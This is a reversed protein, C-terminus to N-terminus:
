LKPTFRKPVLAAWTKERDSKLDDAHIHHTSQHIGFTVPIPNSREDLNRNLYILSALHDYHGYVKSRAFERKIKAQNYIGYKLCGILMKCSPDVELGGTKVRIRLDNVMAPLEDKDTARFDIGHLHNLDNILLPNDNDSVRRYVSKRNWAPKGEADTMEWIRAEDDKIMKALQDTTMKPGKLCNEGVICLMARRFDYYGYIPATFDVVGLDISTYRHYYAFFQDKGSECIFHDSWEPIIALDEDTVFECLFERRWTTSDKGGCEKALIAKTEETCTEDDDITAKFLKGEEAAEHVFETFDHDPTEPPTSSMVVRLHPRNRLMPLIVSTFIYRLKSVFGAEDIVVLDLANGRLGDPHKDLGVLKIESGNHKFVFKARVKDYKPRLELPADEFLLDFIPIIFQELDSQFATGYNVRARPKKLCVEIAKKAWKYSKGTQRAILCVFLFSKTEEYAKNLRKQIPKLKYDLNGRFWYENKLRERRSVGIQFAAENM